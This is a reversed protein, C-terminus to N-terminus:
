ISTRFLKRAIMLYLFHHNISKLKESRFKKVDVNWTKQWKKWWYFLRDTKTNRKTQHLKASNYKQSFSTNKDLEDSYNYNSHLLTTLSQTRTFKANINAYHRHPSSVHQSVKILVVEFNVAENRFWSMKWAPDTQRNFMLSAINM